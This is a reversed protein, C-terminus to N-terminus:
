ASTSEGSLTAPLREIIADALVLALSTVLDMWTVSQLLLAIEVVYTNATKDSHHAVQTCLWSCHRSPRFRRGRGAESTEKQGGVQVGDDHVEIGTVVSTIYTRKARVDDGDM